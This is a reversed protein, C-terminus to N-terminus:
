VVSKRDLCISSSIDPNNQCAKKATLLSDSFDAWVHLSLIKQAGSEFIGRYFEGVQDADSSLAGPIVSVGLAELQSAELGCPNDCVIAFTSCDSSAM